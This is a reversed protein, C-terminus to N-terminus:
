SCRRRKDGSTAEEYDEEDEDEDADGHQGHVEDESGGSGGHHNNADQNSGHRDGFTRLFGRILAQYSAYSLDRIQEVKEDFRSGLPRDTMTFKEVEDHAKQSWKKFRKKMQISNAKVHGINLDEPRVGRNLSRYVYDEYNKLIKVIVDTTSVGETRQTARFKGARKVEAYIDRVPEEKSKKKKPAGQAYPAEDHAVFDIDMQEVFEMGITWPCPAVIEDVWRLHQLGQVREEMTQVTQGKYKRTEEDSAVGVILYVHNFMQKAQQLQRM